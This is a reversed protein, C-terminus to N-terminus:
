KKILQTVGQVKTRIGGKIVEQNRIGEVAVLEVGADLISVLKDGILEAARIVEGKVIYQFPSKLINAL